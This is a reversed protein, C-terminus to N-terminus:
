LKLSERIDRFSEEIPAIRGIRVDEEAESLTRLLELESHRNATIYAQQPNERYLRSYEAYHDCSNDSTHITM